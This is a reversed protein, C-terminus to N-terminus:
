LKIWGGSLALVFAELDAREGATLGLPVIEDDVVTAGAVGGQDYLQIISSLTTLQGRHMFFPGTQALNRLTPTKFRRMDRLRGTFGFRGSDFGVIADAVDSPSLVTVNNVAPGARAM